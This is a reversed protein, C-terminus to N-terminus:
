WFAKDVEKKLRKIALSNLTMEISVDKNNTIYLKYFVTEPYEKHHRKEIKITTQTEVM